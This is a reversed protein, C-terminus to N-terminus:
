SYVKRLIENGYKYKQIYKTTGESIERPKAQLWAEILYQSHKYNIIYEMTEDSFKYKKQLEKQEKTYKANEIIMAKLYPMPNISEKNKIIEFHLHPANGVGTAGMQGIIEGGIVKQGKKVNICHLHQYLSQYEETHRIKIYKGRANNEGIESIEGDAVAYVNGCAGCSKPYKTKDRGIDIGSHFATAGKINKVEKARYGYESTIRMPIYPMHQIKM